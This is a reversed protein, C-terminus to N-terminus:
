TPPRMAWIGTRRAEAFSTSFCRETSRFHYGPYVYEYFDTRHLGLLTAVWDFELGVNPAPGIPSRLTTQPFRIPM